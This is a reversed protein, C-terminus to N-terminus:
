ESSSLVLLDQRKKGFFLPSPAFFVKKMKMKLNTLTELYMYFHVSKQRFFYQFCIIHVQVTCQVSMRVAQKNHNFRPVYLQSTRGELFALNHNNVKYINM